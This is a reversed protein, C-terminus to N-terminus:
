CTHQATKPRVSLVSSLGLWDMDSCSKLILKCLVWFEFAVKGSSKETVQFDCQSRASIGQLEIILICVM